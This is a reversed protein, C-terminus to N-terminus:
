FDWAVVSPEDDSEYDFCLLDYDDMVRCNHGAMDLGAIPVLKFQDYRISTWPFPDLRDNRRWCIAM